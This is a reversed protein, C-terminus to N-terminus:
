TISSNVDIGTNAERARDRAQAVDGSYGLAVCLEGNALAQVYGRSDIQTIYPRIKMLAAQAATL